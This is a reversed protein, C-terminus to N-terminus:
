SRASTHQHELDQEPGFLQVGLGAAVDHAPVVRLRRQQRTEPLKHQVLELHQREGADPVSDGARGEEQLPGLIVTHDGPAGVARVTQISTM